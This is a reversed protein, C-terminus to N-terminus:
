HVPCNPLPTSHWVADATPAMTDARVWFLQADLLVQYFRQTEDMGFVWLTKGAPMVFDPQIPKSLDPGWYGVADKVFTGVARDCILKGAPVAPAAPPAAVVPAAGTVAAPDGTVVIINTTDNVAGVPFPTAAIGDSVPADLTIVTQITHTGAPLAALPFSWYARAITGGALVEVAQWGADVGARPSFVTEGNLLVTIDAHATFEEVQQTTRAVWSYILTVPTGPAITYRGASTEIGRWTLVKLPASQAGSIGQPILMTALIVMILVASLKRSM